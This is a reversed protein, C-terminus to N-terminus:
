QRQLDIWNSIADDVKEVKGWERLTQGVSSAYYFSYDFCGGDTYEINVTFSFAKGVRVQIKTDDNPYEFIEVTM